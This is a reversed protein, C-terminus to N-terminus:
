TKFAMNFVKLHGVVTALSVAIFLIFITGILPTLKHWLGFNVEVFFHHINDPM